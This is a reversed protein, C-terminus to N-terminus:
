HFTSHGSVQSRRIVMTESTSQYSNYQCPQPMSGPVYCLIDDLLTMDNDLSNDGPLNISQGRWWEKEQFKAVFSRAVLSM